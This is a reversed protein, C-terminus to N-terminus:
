EYRGGKRSASRIVLAGILVFTLVGGIIALGIWSKGTLNEQRLPETPAPEETEAPATAEVLGEPITVPPETPAETPVTTPETEPETPAETPVTAPETEPQALEELYAVMEEGSSPIMALRGGFNASLEAIASEPWPNSIPYYITIFNSNFLCSDRFSPMGGACNVTTLSSCDRFCEPGFKKFTDPLFITELEDCGMFARDGIEKLSRGFNITKLRDWDSFADPAVTTIGGSLVITEINDKHAYWPCGEDMEGQGTITLTTGDVRWTLNGLTGEYEKEEQGRKPRERTEEVTEETAETTEEEAAYVAPALLTLILISALLLMIMRKM